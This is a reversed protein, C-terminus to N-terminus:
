DKNMVKLIILSCFIFEYLKYYYIDAINTSEMIFLIHFWISNYELITELNIVTFM